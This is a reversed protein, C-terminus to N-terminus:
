LGTQSPPSPSGPTGRRQQAVLACLPPAHRPSACVASLAKQLPPIPCTVSGCDNPRGSQQKLPHTSGSRDRWSPPATTVGTKFPTVAWGGAVTAPAGRLREKPPPPTLPCHSISRAGTAGRPLVAHAVGCLGMATTVGMGDGSIKNWGCGSWGCGRGITGRRSREAWVRCECREASEGGV